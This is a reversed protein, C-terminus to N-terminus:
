FTAWLGIFRTLSTRLSVSEVANSSPQHLNIYKPQTCEFRLKSSPSRNECKCDFHGIVCIMFFHLLMIGGGQGIWLIHPPLIVRIHSCNLRWRKLAMRLCKGLFHCIFVINYLTAKSCIPHLILLVNFRLSQSNTEITYNEAEKESELMANLQFDHSFLKERKGSKFYPDKANSSNVKDVIDCHSLM